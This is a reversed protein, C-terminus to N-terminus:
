ELDLDFHEGEDESVCIGRLEGPGGNGVEAGDDQIQVASSGEDFLPVDLRAKKQPQPLIEDMEHARKRPHAPAIESMTLADQQALM